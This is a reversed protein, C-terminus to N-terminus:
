GFIHSQNVRVVFSRFWLNVQFEQYRTMVVIFSIEIIFHFTTSRKCWFSTVFTVKCVELWLAVHLVQYLISMVIFCIKTTYHFTTSSKYGFYGCIHGQKGRALTLQLVQYLILVVIFSIKITFHFM